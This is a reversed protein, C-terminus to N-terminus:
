TTLILYGDEVTLIANGIVLVGDIVRPEVYEGEDTKPDNMVLVQVRIDKEPVAECTFDLEGERQGTCLIGSKVYEDADNPVFSVSIVSDEQVEAVYVTARNNLWSARPIVIEVGESMMVDGVTRQLGIVNGSIRALLAYIQNMSYQSLDEVSDPTDTIIGPLINISGSESSASEGDGGVFELSYLLRGALATVKDPMTGAFIAGEGDTTLTPTMVIDDFWEESPPKLRLICTTNAFPAVVTVRHEFSGQKIHSPISKM